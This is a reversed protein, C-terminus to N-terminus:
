RSARKEKWWEYIRIGTWALGALSAVIGVVTNIVGLVSAAPLAVALADLSTKVSNNM